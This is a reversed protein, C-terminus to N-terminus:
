DENFGGIIKKDDKNQTVGAPKSEKGLKDELETELDKVKDEFPKVAVAVADTIAKKVDENKALDKLGDTVAQNVATEANSSLNEFPKSLAEALSNQFQEADFSGDAKPQPKISKILGVVENKFDLFLKKMDNDNQVPKVFSNYSNLIASNSFPWQDATFINTFSVEEGEVKVFGKEEAEQATLHTEADMLTSVEEAKMNSKNVYLNVIKDNFKRMTVAYNEVEKVSGFVGGSVNHIMMWSNPSMVPNKGALLILTLSSAIIGRGITNVVKGKNQMDTLLDFIALADGVHGGPGNLFVNYTEADVKGIDNRFSKYSTSTTDGFYAKLFEQTSADVIDGDIFIDVSKETKNKIAYNFIHVPKKM